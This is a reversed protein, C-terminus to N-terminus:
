KRRFWKGATYRKGRTVARYHFIFSSPIVAFKWGQKAWRGMLEDENLTMLPTPNKHGRSTFDNRPCYFHDADYKGDVWTKMKAIQFFGNVGAEKAVGSFQQRLISAVQNLYTLDDTIRYEPFYVEVGSIHPCTKGPANSVPGVLKFGGELAALLGVYWQETFLIDNNAPCAYDANRDLALELGKNWSRTLGGWEDFHHVLVEQGDFLTTDLLEDRLQGSWGETADDVVIGIGDATYRFFTHLAAKAYEMHELGHTPCIFAIKIGM